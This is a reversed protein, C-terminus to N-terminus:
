KLGDAKSRSQRHSVAGGRQGFMLLILGLANDLRSRRNAWDVDFGFLGRAWHSSISHWLAFACTHVSDFGAERARRALERHGYPEEFGYPWRRRLELYLKWIRYPVCAAHPVSVVALGGSTLVDYHARIAHTREARTFHEIVGSSLAVDFSGVLSSPPEFMDGQVYAADLGLRDFRWRAQDLATTNADLLTVEAGREALLASLDGRGSGLEITRLGKIQGFTQELQEVIEGWRPGARERALLGDDREVTPRNRWIREWVGSAESAPTADCTQITASDAM